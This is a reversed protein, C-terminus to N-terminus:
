YMNMVKHITEDFHESDADTFLDLKLDHREQDANHIYFVEFVTKDQKVTKLEDFQVVDIIDFCMKNSKIKMKFIKLCDFFIIMMVKENFQFMNHEILLCHFIKNNTDSLYRSMQENSVEGKPNLFSDSGGSENSSGTTPVVPLNRYPAKKMRKEFPNDNSKSGKNFLRSYCEIQQNKGKEDQCIECKDPNHNIINISYKLCIEHIAKFGGFSYSVFNTKNRILIGIFDKLNKYESLKAEFSKDKKKESNFEKVDLEKENKQSLYGITFKNAASLMVEKFFRNEYEKYNTTDSTLLIIHRNKIDDIIDTIVASDIPNESILPYDNFFPDVGELKGENIQRTKKDFARIDIVFFNKRYLKIKNKCYYCELENENDNGKLFYKCQNDVCNTETLNFNFLIESPLIPLALMNETDYKEYLEKLRRSRPKFIQLKNVLIRFSYPTKERIEKAQKVIQELESATEIKIKSFYLPIMSFDHEFFKNRFYQLFAIVMYHILLQDGEEILIDWFKYVIYLSHKNAYTTLLWNTAYMQPSIGSREFLLFLEPDHYKLLLTLLSVSSRFAYLEPEHYYNTLFKDVILSCLNLIRPISIDIKVQLLILPGMIENLGQKYEISNLKCFYILLKKLTKSFGPLVAGEKIRTRDVDNQIVKTHTYTLDYDDIRKDMETLKTYQSCKNMLIAEWKDVLEPTIDQFSIDTNTADM